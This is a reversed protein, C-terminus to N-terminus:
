NPVPLRITFTTGEGVRSAVTIEGGHSEVIGFSTSLGLGSGQEKTTFFPEFLRAQAEPPIGVGTDSFDVRVVLVSGHGDRDRVQDLGTRVCLTGGDPMADIANLVLNLFVQRLHDANAQVAPLEPEWERVVAVQSHQLQKHALELVSELVAQLDTRAMAKQAPRYFDRMRRVITSVREIENGAIGLYRELTEQRREGALEESALTLCGQVAQLPNNIEHAISATLRGLAAIKEAHILQAHAEEREQLLRRLEDARARTDTYLRANELAVAVISSVAELTSLDEGTFGGGVKNTAVILGTVKGLHMMPVCLLSRTKVGTAVDLSDDWRPDRDVDNVLEARGHLAVRGAIGQGQKLRWGGLDREADITTMGLVLDGTHPEVLLASCEAASVARSALALVQRLVTTPDLSSTAAASIENLAQLRDAQRAEQYLQANRLALGVQRGIAEGLARDSASYPRPVCWAVDMIGLVEDQACLPIGIHTDLDVSYLVDAPLRPCDTMPIPQAAIDGGALLQGCIECTDLPTAEEALVFAEPIGRWAAVRPLGFPPSGPLVVWGADAELVSLVVDLVTSLLEDPDLLAAAASTVTYLARQEHAQRRLAEQAAVRKTVDQKFAIFHTIEGGADRVPTITMEETYHSGEKRRNVVEGRWIRGSTITEWLDQYFALKHQGSKLLRPNQGMVEQKSYGTLSTFAPNVWIIHGDSDTIVIANAASELAASQLGLRGLRDM